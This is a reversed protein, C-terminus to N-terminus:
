NTHAVKVAVVSESADSLKHEPSKQLTLSESAALTLSGVTVDSTNTVTVQAAATSTNVLRVASAKGLDSATASLTVEEALVKVTMDHEKTIMRRTM